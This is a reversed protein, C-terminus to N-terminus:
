FLIDHKSPCSGSSRGRSRGSRKRRSHNNSCSSSSAELNYRKLAKDIDKISLKEAKAVVDIPYESPNELIDTRTSYYMNPSFSGNNIDSRMIVCNLEFSFKKLDFKRGKTKERLFDEEMLVYPDKKITFIKLLYKLM